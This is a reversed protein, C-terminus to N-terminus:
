KKKCETLKICKKGSQFYNKDCVCGPVCIKPCARVIPEECTLQCHYNCRSYHQNPGCTCDEEKVCKVTKGFTGVQALFEDHCKCSQIPKGPCVRVPPDHFNACTAACRSVAGPSSNPPCSIPKSDSHVEWLLLSLLFVASLKFFGM